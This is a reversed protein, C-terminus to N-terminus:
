RGASSGVSRGGERRVEQMHRIDWARLESDASGTLLRSEQNLLVMGWVQCVCVFLLTRQLSALAVRMNFDWGTCRRRRWAAGATRVESRHGVVTKFCHQTDLDWWKVFSDKSSCVVCM